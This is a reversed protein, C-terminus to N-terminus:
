DCGLANRPDWGRYCLASPLSQRAAPEPLLGPSDPVSPYWAAAAYAPRVEHEQCRQLKRDDELHILAFQLTALFM